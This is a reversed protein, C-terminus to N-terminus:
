IRSPRLKFLYVTDAYNLIRENIMVVSNCVISWSHSATHNGFNGVYQQSKKNLIFITCFYVIIIFLFLIHMVAFM